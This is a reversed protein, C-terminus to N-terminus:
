EGYGEGKQYKITKKYDSHDCNFVPLGCWDTRELPSPSEGLLIAVIRRNERCYDEMSDMILKMTTGTYIMDDVIVINKEGM